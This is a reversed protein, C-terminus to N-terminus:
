PLTRHPTTEIPSRDMREVFDPVRIGARIVRVVFKTNNVLKKLERAM